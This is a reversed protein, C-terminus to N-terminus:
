FRAFVFDGAGHFGSKMAGGNKVVMSTMTAMIMAKGDDLSGLLDIGWLSEVSGNRNMQLEIGAPAARGAGMDVARM